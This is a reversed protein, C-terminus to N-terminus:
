KNKGKKERIKKMLMELEDESLDDGSLDVLATVAKAASGEFFVDMLRRAASKMAAARAVAPKYIYRLDVAEHRILEKEELKRLMARIASNSPPQPLRVRIEEASAQGMEFLLDM